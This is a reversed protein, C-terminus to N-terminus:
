SSSAIFTKKWFGAFQSVDRNEKWWVRELLSVEINCQVLLLSLDLNTRPKYSGVTNKPKMEPWWLHFGLGLLTSRTNSNESIGPPHDTPGYTKRQKWIKRVHQLCNTLWYSIFSIWICGPAKNRKRASIHDGQNWTVHDAYLLLNFIDEMTSRSLISFFYIFKPTRFSLDTM